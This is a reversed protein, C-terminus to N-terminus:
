YELIHALIIRLLVRRQHVQSKRHLYCKSILNKKREQGCRGETISLPQYLLHSEVSLSHYVSGVYHKDALSHKRYSGQSFHARVTSHPQPNDNDERSEDHLKPLEQKRSLGVGSVVSM